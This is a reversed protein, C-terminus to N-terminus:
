DAPNIIDAPIFNSLDTTLVDFNLYPYLDPITPYDQEDIATAADGDRNSLAFQFDSSLPIHRDSIYILEEAATSSTREFPPFQINSSSYENVTGPKTSNATTSTPNSTTSISHEVAKLIEQISNRSTLIPEEQVMTTLCELAFKIYELHNLYNPPSRLIDHLLVTCASDLFFANYRLSQPIRPLCESPLSTTM